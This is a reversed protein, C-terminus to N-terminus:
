LAYSCKNWHFYVHYTTNVPDLYYKSPKLVSAWKPCGWRLREGPELDFNIGPELVRCLVEGPELVCATVKVRRKRM